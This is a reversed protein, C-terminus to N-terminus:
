PQLKFGPILTSNGPINDDIMPVFSLSMYQCNQQQVQNKYYRGPKRLKVDEGEMQIEMSDNSAVSEADAKDWTDESLCRM